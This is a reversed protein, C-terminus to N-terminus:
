TSKLNLGVSKVSSFGKGAMSSSEHISLLQSQPWRLGNVLCLNLEAHLNCVCKLFFYTILLRSVERYYKYPEKLDVQFLNGVIPSPAPGPPLREFSSNKGRNKWFLLLVVVGLILSLFNSHLLGISFTDM